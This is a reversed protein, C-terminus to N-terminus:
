PALAAYFANNGTRLDRGYSLAVTTSFARVKLQAGLDVLWRHSGLATGPDTIKGTDVLPGLKLTILGNSYLNKDQEWSHLFYNRGLPASGKRGDRTGIHAHMPLDNDRELGLMFLEDFPTQGFTGGARIRQELAYDDGSARPLWHWGLSGQLKEWSRGPEAWLRAAQSSVASDVTIHWDPIRVLKAELKVTQKLQDGSALLAGTLVAGPVVSRFDRHSLEAGAQWGFSDRAFSALVFGFGERRLNLSALVPAVGTFSSRLAWNENRLDTSLSYRVTATHEFPSSFEAWLRRKEADWRVLSQVNAARGDINDYELTMGQFPLDSAVLVLAQLKTDGFGNKERNRFWVDFAGDPRARLDLHQQAFIDLGRLRQESDLLESRTMTASPSFTFARDLLAASVRPVPDQHVQAIRPKGVRNWYKLAAPLNDELFYVTGLFDSAYPDAPALRLAKRLLCAAKPYQKLRFAIGARETPFRPDTHAMRQGSELARDAEALRGLHALASGLYFSMDPSRPPLNGLRDVIAEWQESSALQRIQQISPAQTPVPQAQLPLIACILTVAVPGRGRPRLQKGILKLDLM